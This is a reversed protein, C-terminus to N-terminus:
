DAPLGNIGDEATRVVRPIQRPRRTATRSALGGDDSVAAAREAQATVEPAAYAYWRRKAADAAELRGRMTQGLEIGRTIREILL